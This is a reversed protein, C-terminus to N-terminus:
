SAAPPSEGHHELAAIRESLAEIAAGMEALKTGVFEFAEGVAGTLGAAIQEPLNLFEM